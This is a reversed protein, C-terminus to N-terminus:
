PNPIRCGCCEQYSSITQNTRFRSAIGRRLSLDIDYPATREIEVCEFFDKLCDLHAVLKTGMQEFVLTCAARLEDLLEMFVYFTEESLFPGLRSRRDMMREILKHIRQQIQQSPTKYQRRQRNCCVFGGDGVSLYSYASSSSSDDDHHHTSLSLLSAIMAKM